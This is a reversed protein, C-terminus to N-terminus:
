PTQLNQAREIFEYDIGLNRLAGNIVERDTEYLESQELKLQRALERALEMNSM